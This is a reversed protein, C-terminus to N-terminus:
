STQLARQLPRWSFITEDLSVRDRSLRRWVIQRSVITFAQASFVDKPLAVNRVVEGDHETSLLQECENGFVWPHGALIRSNGSPKLKLSVTM